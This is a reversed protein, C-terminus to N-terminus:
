KKRLPIRMQHFKKLRNLLRTGFLKNVSKNQNIQSPSIKALIQKSSMELIYMHILTNILM